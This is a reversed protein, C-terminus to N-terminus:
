HCRLHRQSIMATPAHGSLDKTAQGNSEGNERPTAELAPPLESKGTNWGKEAHREVADNIKLADSGSVNEFAKGDRQLVFFPVATVGYSESIEHLSEADLKLFSILPPAQEPYSFALTSLGLAMQYCPAAWPTYFSIALLTSSPLFAVHNYFSPADTIETITPM